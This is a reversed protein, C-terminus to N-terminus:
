INYTFPCLESAGLRQGGRGRSHVGYQLRFSIRRITVIVGYQPDLVAYQAVLDVAAAYLM